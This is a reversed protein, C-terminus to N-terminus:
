SKNLGGSFVEEKLTRHTFALFLLGPLIIVLTLGASVPDLAGGGRIKSFLLTALTDVQGQGVYFTLLFINTSILISFLAAALIGPLILPFEVYRFIQYRSAGLLAAQDLMGKDLEGYIVTLVRVMYPIVPVLHAIIIAVLNGQLGFQLFVLLMGLSVAMEPVILPAALFLEFLSKGKFNQTALVKAAPLSIILALLTVCLAILITNQMAPVVRSVPDFIYDWALPVQLTDRKEWWWISPLLDPWGWRFALSAITLPALPGLIGTILFFIAVRQLKSLSRM